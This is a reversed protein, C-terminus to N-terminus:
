AADPTRGCMPCVLTVREAIRARLQQALADAIRLKEAEVSGVVVVVKAGPGIMNPRVMLEAACTVVVRSPLESGPVRIARLNSARWEPPINGNVGALIAGNCAGNIELILEAALDREHKTM